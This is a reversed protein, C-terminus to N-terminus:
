GESDRGGREIEVSAAENRCHRNWGYQSLDLESMGRWDVPNAVACLSRDLASSGSCLQWPQNHLSGKVQPGFTCSFPNRRNRTPCVSCLSHSSLWVDSSDVRENALRYVDQTFLMPASPFLCFNPSEHQLCLRWRRHSLTLAQTLGTLAGDVM